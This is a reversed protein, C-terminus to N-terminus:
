SALLNMAMNVVARWLVRGETVHIWHTDEWWNLDM